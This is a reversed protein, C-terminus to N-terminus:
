NKLALTCQCTVNMYMYLRNVNFLVTKSNLLSRNGEFDSMEYTLVQYLQNFRVIINHQDFKWLNNGRIQERFKREMEGLREGFWFSFSFVPVFQFDKKSSSSSSYERRSTVSKLQCVAFFFYGRLPLINGPFSFTFILTFVGEYTAFSVIGPLRVGKAAQGIFM